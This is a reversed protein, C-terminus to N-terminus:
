QTLRNIMNNIYIDIIKYEEIEKGFQTSIKKYKVLIKKLFTRKNNKFEEIMNESFQM